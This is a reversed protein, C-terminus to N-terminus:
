SVREMKENLKAHLRFGVTISHWQKKEDHWAPYFDAELHENNLNAIQMPYGYGPYKVVDGDKFYNVLPSAHENLMLVVAEYDSGVQYNRSVGFKDSKVYRLPPRITSNDNVVEVVHNGAHHGAVSIVYKSRIAAM